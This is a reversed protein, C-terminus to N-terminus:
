SAKYNLSCVVINLTYDPMTEYISYLVSDIVVTHKVMDVKGANNKYPYELTDLEGFSFTVSNVLSKAIAGTQPVIMTSHSIILGKATVSVSSNPTTLVVESAWGATNTLAGQAANILADIHGAM